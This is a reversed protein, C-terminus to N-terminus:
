LISINSDQFLWFMQIPIVMSLAPGVLEVVNDTNDVCIVQFIDLPLLIPSKLSEQDLVYVIPNYSGVAM